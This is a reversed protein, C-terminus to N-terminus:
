PHILLGKRYYDIFLGMTKPNIPTFGIQSAPTGASIRFDRRAANVFGPDEPGFVNNEMGLMDWTVEDNHTFWSWNIGFGFNLPGVYINRKVSNYKAKRPEDQLINALHPYRASYIPGNYPVALLRQNLSNWTSDWGPTLLKSDVHFGSPLGEGVFSNPFGLNYIINNEFRNDRGGGIQAASSVNTFINGIVTTGSQCDDLYVAWTESHHAINVTGILRDYINNFSNNAIYNGRATWDRGAYLAGCDLTDTVCDTFTNNTIQHDNGDFYLTIHRNDHFSNGSIISGVGEMKLSPSFCYDTMGTNYFHCNIVRANGSTLTVRDGATITIGAGAINYIDCSQFKVGTSRVYAATAGMNRITCGVVNVNPSSIIELANRRCQEFVLGQL